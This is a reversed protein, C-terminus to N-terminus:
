AEKTVYFIKKNPAGKKLQNGVAQILHTKGRGTEGYIFLPNYAIGPKITVAQAAAHALENFPGVVFTEFTYRPNLNDKRNIYHENLPLEGRVTSPMLADESPTKQKEEKAINYEIGRVNDSFSRLARMISKHYKTSLWDKVFQNPVGLYVVGDEQKIIHTNKFWTSFNAKSINLEVDVLVNEWLQKNEVM